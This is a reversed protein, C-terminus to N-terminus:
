EKRAMKVPAVSWVAGFLELAPDTAELSQVTVGAGSVDDTM